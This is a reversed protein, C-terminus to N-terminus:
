LDSPRREHLVFLVAQWTRSADESERSVIDREGLAPFWRQM